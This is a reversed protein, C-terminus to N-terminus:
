TAAEVQSSRCREVEGLTRWVVGDVRNANEADRINRETEDLGTHPECRFPSSNPHDSSARHQECRSNCKLSQILIRSRGIREVLDPEKRRGLVNGHCGEVGRQEVAFASVVSLRDVSVGIASSLQRAGSVQDIGADQASARGGVDAAIEPPSYM